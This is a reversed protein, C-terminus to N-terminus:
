DTRIAEFDLPNSRMGTELDRGSKQGLLIFNQSTWPSAARDAPYVSVDSFYQSYMQHFRHITDANRGQYASIVNMAIIGTNTLREYALKATQTDGLTVPIELDSFADIIIMDYTNNSTALVERGDDHIITLRETPEYGFFSEAIDDLGPDIEVVDITIDPLSRILTMPLTYTGGGIMLLRKPRVTSVLEFLRQIYDFLLDSNDDLPMGSFAALREGTFLIRAKRGEYIMDVVQYHGHDTDGEYLLKERNFM